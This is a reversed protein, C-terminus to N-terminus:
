GRRRKNEGTRRTSKPADLYFPKAKPEPPQIKAKGKGPRPEHALYLEMEGATVDV